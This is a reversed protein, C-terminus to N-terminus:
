ELTEIYAILAAAQEDTISGPKIVSEMLGPQFGEVTKASPQQISEKLYAEDARVTTGDALRVPSGALGKWTPGVSKSGDTSHCNLCGKEAALAEGRPAPGSVQEGRCAVAVVLCAASLPFCLGRM